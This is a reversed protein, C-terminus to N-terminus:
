QAQAPILDLGADLADGRRKSRALLAAGYAAEDSVPAEPLPWMQLWDPLAIASHTHRADLKM